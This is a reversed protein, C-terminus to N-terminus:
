VPPSLKNVIAEFHAFPNHYNPSVGESGGVEGNDLTHCGSANYWVGVDLGSPYSFEMVVQSGTGKPCKTPLTQPFTISRLASALENTDSSDLRDQRVLQGAEASAVGGQPQYRCILGSIPGVPVLRSGGYTNAVGTYGTISHPCGAAVDIELLRQPYLHQGGEHPVESSCAATLLFLLGFSAALLLRTPSSEPAKM